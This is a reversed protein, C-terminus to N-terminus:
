GNRAVFDLGIKVLDVLPLARADDLSFWKCCDTTGDIEPTPEGSIYETHYIIQIGHFDYEGTNDHYSNVTAPKIIRANIGTEEMIERAAAEIPPEAFDVGGGPLTWQGQWRPLQSSIRCLLIKADHIVLGYAAVRTYKEKM